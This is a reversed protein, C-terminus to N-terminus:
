RRRFRQAGQWERATSADPLWSAQERIQEFSDYRATEGTAHDGLWGKSQEVRRLTSSNAQLRQNIVAAIRLLAIIQQTPMPKLNDSRGFLRLDLIRVETYKM